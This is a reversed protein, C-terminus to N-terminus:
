EQICQAISYIGDCLDLCLFPLTCGQRSTPSTSVRIAWDDDGSVSRLINRTWYSARTLYSVIVHKPRAESWLALLPRPRLHPRACTPGCWSWGVDLTTVLGRSIRQLIAYTCPDHFAFRRLATAWSRPCEENNSLSFPLLFPMEGMKSVRISWHSIQVILSSNQV